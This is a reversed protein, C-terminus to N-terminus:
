CTSHASHFRSGRTGLLGAFLGHEAYTANRESTHGDQGMFMFVKMPNQRADSM